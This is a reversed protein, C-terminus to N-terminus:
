VFGNARQLAQLGELHGMLGPTLQPVNLRTYEGRKEIITVEGFGQQRAEIACLLGVPGGGLIVVRQIGM